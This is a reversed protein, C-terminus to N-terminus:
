QAPPPTDTYKIAEGIVVWGHIQDLSRDYWPGTMIAGVVHKEDHIIVVADAGLKSGALQMAAKIQESPKNEGEPNARIQGLQICPRTPEVSLIQVQTPDTPPFTQTTGSPTTVTPVTACGTLGALFLVAGLGAFNRLITNM